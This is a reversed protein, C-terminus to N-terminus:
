QPPMDLVPITVDSSVIPKPPSLNVPQRMKPPPSPSKDKEESQPSMTGM